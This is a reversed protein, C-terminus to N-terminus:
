GIDCPNCNEMWRADVGSRGLTAGSRASLCVETGCAGIKCVVMNRDCLAELSGRWCHQAAIMRKQVVSKKCRPEYPGREV